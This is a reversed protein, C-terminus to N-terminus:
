HIELNFPLRTYIGRPDNLYRLPILDQQLAKWEQNFPAPLSVSAAREPQPLASFIEEFIAQEFSRQRPYEEVTWQDPELKAFSAAEAIAADLGGLEDVLGLSKANIGSWVRGEAIKAVEAKPLNRGKAVMDLFQDYVANATKQQIALEAPTKPRAITQSNAFPATQITDWTIGNSNAIKQVNPLLGYTGISGTITNAQAFIKKAPTSVWYGGSAAYDGMSVVLPKDQALLTLERGIASAATAGGGPSNVRLVVAKVEETQRVEQLLEVLTDSAAVSFNGEGSVIEGELYVIAIQNDSKGKSDGNQDQAINSYEEVSLQRFPEDEPGGTLAKLKTDIEDSYSVQDMLKQALAEPATLLARQTAIAQLQKADVPRYEATKQLFTGWLSGLLTETQQRNAPSFSKNLYPEVASKFQGVRVVQMGLGFKELAGAYFRVEASFGNLTLSGIPDIALHDAVSGLFYEPESWDSDYAYVPKGAKRFIKIADRIETLSAYGNAPPRDSGQLYLAVIKDDKAAATLTQVLSRLSTGGSSSSFPDGFGLSSGSPASDTVPLSLDYVLVSKKRVKPASQEPKAATFVLLALGGAGLATFLILGVLTALVTRLFKLM